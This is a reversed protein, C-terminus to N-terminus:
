RGNVDKDEDRLVDQKTNVFVQKNVSLTTQFSIFM